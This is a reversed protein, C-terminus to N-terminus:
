RAFTSASRESAPPASAMRASISSATAISEERGPVPGSTRRAEHRKRGTAFGSPAADGRGFHGNGRARRLPITVQERSAMSWDRARRRRQRVLGCRRRAGRHARPPVGDADQAPRGRSLARRARRIRGHLENLPALQAAIVELEARAAAVADLERALRESERSLTEAGHEALRLDSVLQQLAERARQAAEWQPAVVALAAEATGKAKTAVVRRKAADKLRAASEKM